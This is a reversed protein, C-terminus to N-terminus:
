GGQDMIQVVGKTDAVKSSAAETVVSWSINEEDLSANISGM